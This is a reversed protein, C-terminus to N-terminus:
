AIICSCPAEEPPPQRQCARINATWKLVLWDDPLFVRRDYDKEEICLSGTGYRAALRSKIGQLTRQGYHDPTRYDIIKIDRIDDCDPYYGVIQLHYGEVFALRLESCEAGPKALHEDIIESISEEVVDLDSRTVVEVLSEAGIAADALLTENPIHKGAVFVQLTLCDSIGHSRRFQNIITQFTGNAPVTLLIRERGQSQVFIPLEGGAAADGMILDRGRPSDPTSAQSSHPSRQPEQDMTAHRGINIIKSNHTIGVARLLAKDDDLIQSARVLQGIQIGLPQLIRAIAQKLEGVTAAPFVQVQRSGYSPMPRVNVTITNIIETNNRTIGVNQLTEKDDDLPQGAHSLQGTEIGLPRLRSVIAKRLYGVTAFSTIRVQHLPGESTSRVFLTLLSDELGPPLYQLDVDDPSPSGDRSIKYIIRPYGRIKIEDIKLDCRGYQRYLHLLEDRMTDFWLEGDLLSEAAWEPGVFFDYRTKIRHYTDSRDSAGIVLDDGQRVLLLYRALWGQGFIHQNIYHSLSKRAEMIAPHIRTLPSEDLEIEVMAEAGIGFDALQADNPILHGSFFMQLTLAKSIDHTDCFQTIASQATADAPVELVSLDRQYRVFIPISRGAAAEAAM